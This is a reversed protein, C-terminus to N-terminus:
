SPSPPRSAGAPSRACCCRHGRVRRSAAASSPWRGASTSRASCASPSWPRCCWRDGARGRRMLPEALALFGALGFLGAATDTVRDRAWWPPSTENTGGARVILERVKALEAQLVVVQADKPSLAQQAGALQVILRSEESRLLDLRSVFEAPATGASVAATAPQTVPEDQVLKLEGLTVLARGPLVLNLSIRTPRQGPNSHFPLRFSRNASHGALMRLPGADALTRTFFRGGGPFDSWLELYGVGDMDAADVGAYGVVGTVAYDDATFPPDDISLVNLVRPPSPPAALVQVSIETGSRAGVNVNALQAPKDSPNHSVATRFAQDLDYFNLERVIRDDARATSGYATVAVAAAM